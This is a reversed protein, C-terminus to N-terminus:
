NYAPAPPIALRGMLTAECLFIDDGLFPGHQAVEFLGPCGSGHLAQPVNLPLRSSELVRHFSGVSRSSGGVKFRSRITM